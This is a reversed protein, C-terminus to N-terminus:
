CPAAIRDPDSEALLMTCLGGLSTGVFVADAIGLQDLLKLVDAVYVPPAYNAPIPISPAAAAVACTLPSSGGNGPM